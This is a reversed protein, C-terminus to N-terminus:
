IGDSPPLDLKESSEDDPPEPKKPKRTTQLGDDGGKRRRVEAEVEEAFIRNVMMPGACIERWDAGKLAQRVVVEFVHERVGKGYTGFKFAASGNIVKEALLADAIAIRVGCNPCFHWRLDLETECKQCSIM